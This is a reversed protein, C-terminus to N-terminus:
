VRRFLKAYFYLCFIAFHFFGVASHRGLVNRKGKLM